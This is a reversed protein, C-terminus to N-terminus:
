VRELVLAIGQGVGICVTCLAYRAVKRKDEGAQNACGYLVDSASQWDVNPNRTMLTKIPTAGLDDTRVSSLGGTETQAVCAHLEAAQGIIRIAVTLM